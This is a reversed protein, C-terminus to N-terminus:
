SYYERENERRDNKLNKKQKYIYIDLERLFHQNLFSSNFKEGMKKPQINFYLQIM